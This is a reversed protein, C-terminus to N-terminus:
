QVKSVLDQLKLGIGNPNAQQKKIIDVLSEHLIFGPSVTQATRLKQYQEDIFQNTVNAPKPIEFSHIDVGNRDKLTIFINNDVLAVETSLNSANQYIAKLSNTDNDSLRLSNQIINFSGEATATNRPTPTLASQSDFGLNAGALNEIMSQKKALSAQPTFKVKELSSKNTTTFASNRNLANLDLALGTRGLAAELDSTKVRMELNDDFIVETFGDSKPTLKFVTDKNSLLKTVKNDELFDEGGKSAVQSLDEGLKGIVTNTSNLSARLAKSVADQQIGKKVTNKSDLVSSIILSKSGVNLNSKREVLDRELKKAADGNYITRFSDIDQVADNGLFTFTDQIGESKTAELFKTTKDGAKVKFGKTIPRSSPIVGDVGDFSSTAPTITDLEVSASEGFTDSLLDVLIDLGETDGRDVKTNIADALEVRKLKTVEKETLDSLRKKNPATSTEFERDSVLVFSNDGQSLVKNYKERLNIADAGTLQTLSQELREDLGSKVGKYLSDQEQLSDVYDKYELKYRLTDETQQSDPIREIHKNIATLRAQEESMNSTEVLRSVEEEVEVKNILTGNELREAHALAQNKITANRKNFNDLFNTGEVEERNVENLRVEVGDPLVGPTQLNQNSLSTTPNSTNIGRKGQLSAQTKASNNLAKLTSFFAKDESYEFDTQRKKFESQVNGLVREKELMMSIGGLHRAKEETSKGFSDVTDQFQTKKQKYFNLSEQDGKAKAIEISKNIENVRSSVYRDYTEITQQPNQGFTYAANIQLQRQKAPDQLTQNHIFEIQDSELGKFKKTIMRGTPQGNIVEPFQVSSESDKYLQKMLEREQGEVDVFDTYSGGSYESGVQGDNLWSNAGQLAFWANRDSYAEPRNKRTDEIDAQLKRLAKTGQVANIVNDDLAQKVQSQLGRTVNSNSLDVSGVNNIQNVLSNLREQLYEKDLEKAVDLSGITDIQNQILSANADFKQQKFALGKEILDFNFPQIYSGYTRLISRSSAM